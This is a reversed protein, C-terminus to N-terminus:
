FCYGICLGTRLGLMPFKGKVTVGNDRIDTEVENGSISIGSLDEELDAREQASLDSLDTDGNLTIKMSGYSPGLIWWDILFNKAVHWQVGFMLGGMFSNVKGTMDIPKDTGDDMEFVYNWALSNGAFRAYPAIYFGSLPKKGFYYRVEPTIAWSSTKANNLFDEATKDGGDDEIFSSITNKFPLGSKPQLKLGLAASFNDTIGREYQLSITKFPLSFLNLKAHNVGYVADEQSFASQFVLTLAALLCLRKM